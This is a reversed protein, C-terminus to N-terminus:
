VVSASVRRPSDPSGDRPTPPIRGTPVPAAQLRGGTGCGVPIVGIAILVEVAFSQGALTADLYPDMERAPHAHRSLVETFPFLSVAGRCSLRGCRFVCSIEGLQQCFQQCFSEPAPEGCALRGSYRPDM